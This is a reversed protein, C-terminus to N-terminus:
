PTPCASAPSGEVLGKLAEASGARPERRLRLGQGLRCNAVCWPGPHDHRPEPRAVLRLAEDQIRGWVAHAGRSSLHLGDRKRLSGGAEFRGLDGATSLAVACSSSSAARAQLERIRALRRQLRERKVDVPLLVITRQAGRECIREFFQTARQVYLEHWRADGWPLYERGFAAQEDPRLWLAQADNMGLYVFVAATSESIPLEEVVQNMDRYDPRALGAASVGKRTVRYGLRELEHAILRGLAQNMSSSGIVV